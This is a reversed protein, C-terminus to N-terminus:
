LSQLNRAFLFPVFCVDCFLGYKIDISIENVSVYGHKILTDIGNWASFGRNNKTFFSSTTYNSGEVKIENETLWQKANIERTANYYQSFFLFFVNINTM